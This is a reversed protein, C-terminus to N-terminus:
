GRKYVKNAVIRMKTEFDKLLSANMRAGVSREHGGGIVNEFDKIVEKFIELANKGRISINAYSDKVYAIVVLKNPFLYGMEDAISSSISMDGSYCFFLVKDNIRECEIAKKLLRKYKKNIYNFRKHMTYNKSNEELVEYPTKASVLFNILKIINTTRDKLAFNFIETIKGIRSRYRIDFADSHKCSLDPYRKEFEDYFDPIFRDAICGIVAIWLDEKRETAKYCLYTTPLSLNEILPNYYNVFDPIKSLEFDHHDIWVVPLNIEQVREFFGESVLAKDLIFIYDPNFERVKGFYSKTLEGKVCVGKGVGLARRLLLFSCLGDADNDFFFVPNQAKNLSEQIDKIQNSLM